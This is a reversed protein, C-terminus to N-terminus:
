SLTFNGGVKLVRQIESAVKAFDDVHDLANVSIVVDFYSDVYPMSEGKANALKADYDYLPWGADVYMNLLRDLGHRVCNSFQLVPALPGCGVELVRKGSLSDSGIKLEELYSPRIHHMTMVANTGWVDSVNVKKDPRPPPIGWWDITGENYWKSLNKLEGKWYRLEETYKKKSRYAPITKLAIMDARNLIAKVPKNMEWM